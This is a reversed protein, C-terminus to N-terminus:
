CEQVLPVDTHNSYQVAEDEYKQQTTAQLTAQTKIQLGHRNPMLKNHLITNSNADGAKSLHFCFSFPFFTMGNPLSTQM